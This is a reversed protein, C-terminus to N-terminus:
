AAYVRAQWANHASSKLYGANPPPRPGSSTAPCLAPWTMPVPLRTPSAQGPGPGAM